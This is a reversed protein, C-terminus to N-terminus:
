VVGRFGRQLPSLLCEIMAVGCAGFLRMTFTKM